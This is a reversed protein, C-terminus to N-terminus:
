ITFSVRTFVLASEPGIKIAGSEGGWSTVKHDEDIDVYFGYVSEHYTGHLQSGGFWLQTEEISKKGFNVLVFGEPGRLVALLRSKTEGEGEDKKRWGDWWSPSRSLKLAGRAKDKEKKEHAQRAERAERVLAEAKEKLARCV